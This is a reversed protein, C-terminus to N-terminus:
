MERVDLVKFLFPLRNNFRNAVEEGLMGEPDTAIAEALNQTSDIITAAGRPHAGLWLEATPQQEPNQRGLLNPIYEYGGWAYHQLIGSILFPQPPTAM